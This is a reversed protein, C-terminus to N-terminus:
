VDTMILAVGPYYKGDHSVPPKKMKPFAWAKVPSSHNMILSKFNDIEDTNAMKKDKSYPAIFVLTAKPLDEELKKTDAIAKDMRLDISKKLRNINAINPFVVKAEIYLQEEESSIYLDNRGKKSTSESSIKDVQHEELSVFDAQWAAAALVGVNARENFWYPLDDGDFIKVYNDINKIWYELPKRLFELQKNEISLNDM